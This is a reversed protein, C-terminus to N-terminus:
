APCCSSLVGQGTSAEIQISDEALGKLFALGVHGGGDGQGGFAWVDLPSLGRCVMKGVEGDGIPM